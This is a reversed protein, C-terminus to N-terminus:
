TANQGRRFTPLASILIGILVAAILLSSAVALVPDADMRISEFMKKPLTSATRGAIFIAIVAENFSQLFAFLAGVIMAPKLVPLTVLFFTKLPGAGCILAARELNQDFGKSAATIVLFAVPLSLVTHALILGIHTGVIGFSALLRYDGLATVIHPVILPSMLLLNAVQRGHFRHRVYGFSAPIVLLMTLMMTGTAVIISNITAGIWEASNFYEYYYRLGYGPPPFQFSIATSFSMPVVILMPLLLFTASFLAIALPLPGM